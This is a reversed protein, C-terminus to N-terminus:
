LKLRALEDEWSRLCRILFKDFPRLQGDDTFLCMKSVTGMASRGIVFRGLHSRGVPAMDPRQGKSIKRVGLYRDLAGHKHGDHADWALGLEPQDKRLDRRYAGVSGAPAKGSTELHRFVIEALIDIQAIAHVALHRADKEKEWSVVAPKTFEEFFERPEM